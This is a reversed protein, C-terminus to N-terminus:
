RNVAESERDRQAQMAAMDATFDSVFPWEEGARPSQMFRTRDDPEDTVAMRYQSYAQRKYTINDPQLTHARAFHSLARESFGEQRWLHQALEFHAAAESVERTQPHSRAIVEDPSLAYESDSGNRVWDRVMDAYQNADFGYRGGMGWPKLEGDKDPRMVPPPVASEHPRVIVGDEDIWIGSPINTVGFLADMRHTQDVLSPHEPHADEIFPRLVEAGGMELGVAVFEVGQGHLETRLAQWGPLDM